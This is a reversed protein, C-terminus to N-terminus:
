IFKNKIDTINKIIISYTGDSNQIFEVRDADDYVENPVTIEIGHSLSLKQTAFKQTTKDKIHEDVKVSSADKTEEQFELQATLNDPFLSQSIKVPDFQQTEELSEVVAKQVNSALQFEEADFAKGIKKATQKIQRLNDVVSPKLDTQLINESFYKINAGNYKIQKELLMFSHSNLNLLFAEDPNQSDSPLQYTNVQIQNNEVEERNVFGKTLKVRIFGFFAEGDKDFNICILDNATQKESIKFADQWMECFQISKEIFDESKAITVVQHESSLQGSKLRDSYARELKKLLYDHIEPKGLDLQQRSIKLELQNPDFLHLVAAKIYFDM